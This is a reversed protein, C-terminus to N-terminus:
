GKGNGYLKHDIEIIQFIMRRIEIDKLMQNYM